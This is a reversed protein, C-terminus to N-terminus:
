LRVVESLNLAHTSSLQPTQGFGGARLRRTLEMIASQYSICPQETLLALLQWTLAGRAELKGTDPNVAKTTDVSIQHGGCGSWCVMGGDSNCQHTCSADEAWSHGLHTQVLNFRMRLLAGSHCCDGVVTVRAGNSNCLLALLQERKIMGARQGDLPLLAESGKVRVCHGSYYLFLEDGVQANRMLWTVGQLIAARTPWNCPLADDELLVRM